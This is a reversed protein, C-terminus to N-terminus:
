KLKITKSNSLLNDIYVNVIYEGETINNRNVKVLSVLNIKQNRFNINIVDSYNVSYGYPTIFAGKSSVVEGKPSIIQVHVNHSGRKALENEIITFTTKFFDTRSSKEIPKLKGNLREKMALFTIESSTLKGARAIESALEKNRISLSAYKRKYDNVKLNQDKLMSNLIKISDNDFNFLEKNKEKIDKSRKQFKQILQFNEAKLHKVSDRLQLVKKLEQKYKKSLGKNSKIVLTYDKIIKDLDKKLDEKQKDFIGKLQAHEKNLKKYDNIKQFLLISLLILISIGLAKIGNINKVTM